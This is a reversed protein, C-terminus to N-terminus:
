VSVIGATGHPPSLFIQPAHSRLFKIGVQAVPFGTEFMFYFLIFHEKCVGPAGQLGQSAHRMSRSEQSLPLSQARLSAVEQTLVACVGKGPPQKCVVATKFTGKPPCSHGTVHSQRQFSRVRWKKREKKILICDRWKWQKRLGWYCLHSGELVCFIELFCTVLYLTYSIIHCFEILELLEYAGM